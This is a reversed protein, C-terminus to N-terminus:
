INRKYLLDFNTKQLYNIKYENTINLSNNRELMQMFNRLIEPLFDYEAYIKPKSFMMSRITLMNKKTYSSNFNEDILIELNSFYIEPVINKYNKFTFRIMQFEYNDYLYTVNEHSDITKFIYKTPNIDDDKYPLEYWNIYDSSTEIKFMDMTLSAPISYNIEKLKSLSNSIITFNVQEININKVLWSQLDAKSKVSFSQEYLASNATDAYSFITQNLKDQVLNIIM